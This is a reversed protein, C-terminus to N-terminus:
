RGRGAPATYSRRRSAKTSGRARILAGKLQPPTRPAATEKMACLLLERAWRSLNLGDQKPSTTSDELSSLHTWRGAKRTQVALWFNGIQLSKALYSLQYLM